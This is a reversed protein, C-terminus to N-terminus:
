SAFMFTASDVSATVHHRPYESSLLLVGRQKIHHEPSLLTFFCVICPHIKNRCKNEYKPAKARDKQGTTAQRRNQTARQASAAPSVALRLVLRLFGAIRR